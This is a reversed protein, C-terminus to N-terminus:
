QYQLRYNEPSCDFRKKFATCFNNSSSFGCSNAISKISQDQQKLLECAKKFRLNLLYQYPSIELHEKFLRTLQRHSIHLEEALRGMDLDKQDLNTMLVSLATTLVKSKENQRPLIWKHKLAEEILYRTEQIPSLLKGTWESYKQNPILVSQGISAICGQEVDYIPVAICYLGRHHEELDLGYGQTKVDMLHNPFNKPTWQVSDSHNETAHHLADLIVESKEHALLVKGPASYVSCARSGAPVFYSSETGPIVELSVTQSQNLVALYSFHGNTDRLAELYPKATDRLDFWHLPWEAEPFIEM